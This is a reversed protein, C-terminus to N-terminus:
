NWHSQSQSGTILHKVVLPYAVSKNLRVM